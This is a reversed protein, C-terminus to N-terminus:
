HRTASIGNAQAMAAQAREQELKAVFAPSPASAGISADQVLITVTPAHAQQHAAQATPAQINHSPTESPKNLGFIGDFIPTLATSLAGFGVFFLAQTAIATGTAAQATAALGLAATLYPMTFALTAGIIAFVIATKVINKM